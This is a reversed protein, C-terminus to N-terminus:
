LQICTRGPEFNLHHPLPLGAASKRVGKNRGKRNRKLFPLSQYEGLTRPNTIYFSIDSHSHPMNSAPGSGSVGAGRNLNLLAPEKHQNLDVILVGINQGEEHFLFQGIDVENAQRDGPNPEICRPGIGISKEPGVGDIGVEDGIRGVKELM